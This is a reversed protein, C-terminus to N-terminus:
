IVYALPGRARASCGDLNALRAGIDGDLPRKAVRLALRVDLALCQAEVCSRKLVRLERVTRKLLRRARKRSGSAVATAKSADRRTRASTFRAARATLIAIQM